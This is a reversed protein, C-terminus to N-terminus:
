VEQCFLTYLQLYYQRLQMAGIRHDPINDPLMCSTKALCLNPLFHIAEASLKGPSKLVPQLSDHVTGALTKLEQKIAIRHAHVIAEYVGAGINSISGRDSGYVLLSFAVANTPFTSRAEHGAIAIFEKEESEARRPNL